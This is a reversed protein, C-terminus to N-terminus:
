DVCNQSVLRFLDHSHRPFRDHATVGRRLAIIAPASFLGQPFVMIPEFEAGTRKSMSAMRQIALTAKKDLLTSDHTEFEKNTHDCGHICLSLHSNGVVRRADRRSTRWGNWPIFAISTGYKNRQMSELLAAYDLFGYQKTLLPDDIILRATPRPGYWCREGFCHRFFMLVPLLRDYHEKLEHEANLREDLDPPVPSGLLFVQLAGTRIRVFLPHDDAAVIVEPETTADRFGFLSIPDSSQRVYTLGALQQSLVKAERPFSLTMESGETRSARSVQGHTLSSIAANEEASGSCAFVLLEACVGAFFSQLDTSADLANQLMVLTKASLALSCPHRKLEDLLRQGTTDGERILVSQTSVGMWSALTILRQDQQAQDSGSLVFLYKSEMRHAM